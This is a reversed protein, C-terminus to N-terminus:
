LDENCEDHADVIPIIGTDVPPVVVVVDVVTTADIVGADIGADVGADPPILWACYPSTQPALVVSCPGKVDSIAKVCEAVGGNPPGM